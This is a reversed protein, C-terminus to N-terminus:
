YYLNSVVAGVNKISWLNFDIYFRKKKSINEELLFLFLFLVVLVILVGFYVAGQIKMITSRNVFKDSVSRQFNGISNLLPRGLGIEEDEILDLQNIKANELKKQDSKYQKDKKLIKKSKSFKVVNYFINYVGVMVMCGQCFLFSLTPIDVTIKQSVNFLFVEAACLIIM